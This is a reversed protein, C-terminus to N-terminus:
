PKVFGQCTGKEFGKHSVWVKPTIREEEGVKEKYGAFVM